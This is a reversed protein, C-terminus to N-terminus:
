KRVCVLKTGFCSVDEVEEDDDHDESNGFMHKYAQSASSARSKQQKM